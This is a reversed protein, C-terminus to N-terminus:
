LARRRWGEEEQAAGGAGGDAAEAVPRSSLEVLRTKHQCIRRAVACFRDPRAGTDRVGAGGDLQRQVDGAQLRVRPVPLAGDSHRHDRRRVVLHCWHAFVRVRRRRRRRKKKCFDVCEDFVCWWEHDVGDGTSQHDNEGQRVKRCDEEGDSDFCLHPDRYTRPASHGGVRAVLGCGSQVQGDVM